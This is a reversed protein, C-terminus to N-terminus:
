VGPAPPLDSLELVRGGYILIVHGGPLITLTVGDKMKDKLRINEERLHQNSAITNGIDESFMGQITELMEKLEKSGGQDQKAQLADLSEQLHKLEAEHDAKLDAVTPGSCDPTGTIECRMNTCANSTLLSSTDTPVRKMLKKSRWPYFFRTRTGARRVYAIDEEKIRGGFIADKVAQFRTPSEIVRHDGNQLYIEYNKINTSKAM